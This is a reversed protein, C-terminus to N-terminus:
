SGRSGDQVGRMDALSCREPAQCGGATRPMRGADGPHASHAGLLKRPQPKDQESEATCLGLRQCALSLMM